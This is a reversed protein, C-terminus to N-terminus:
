APAVGEPDVSAAAMEPACTREFGEELDVGLLLVLRNVFNFYGVTLAADLLARDDYGHARLAELAAADAETPALTARRAWALLAGEGDSLGPADVGGGELADAVAPDERLNRLAQGHHAVCYRCGNAASVVVGIRERDRRSLSSRQFVIAKYLELHTAMARPNLSQVQHVDAVGGRAGAITRYLDALEGSADEPRIVDIWPM